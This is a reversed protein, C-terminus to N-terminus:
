SKRARIAAIREARSVDDQGTAVQLISAIIGSLVMAVVGLAGPNAHGGGWVASALGVLICSSVFSVPGIWGRRTRPANTSPEM